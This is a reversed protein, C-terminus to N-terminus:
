NVFELPDRTIRPDGAIREAGGAVQCEEGGDATVTVPACGRQELLGGVPM